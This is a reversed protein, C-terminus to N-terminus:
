NLKMGVSSGVLWRANFESPLSSQPQFDLLIFCCMTQMTTFNKIGVPWCRKELDNQIHKEIASFLCLM